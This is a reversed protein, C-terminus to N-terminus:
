IRAKNGQQSWRTITRNLYPTFHGQYTQQLEILQWDNGTVKGRCLAKGCRCPSLEWLPDVEWTAYDATLEEGIEIERRAVLTIDDKLWVNPDCSHNLYYDPSDTEANTDALFFNEDIRSVTGAKAIGAKIEDEVFITGGWIIVMEGAHITKYAFMGFGEISSLKVVVRSDIWSNIVQGKCIKNLM